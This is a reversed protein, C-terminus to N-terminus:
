VQPSPDAAAQAHDLLGPRPARCPAAGGVTSRSRTALPWWPVHGPADIPFAEITANAHKWARRYGSIIPERSVGETVWMDRSDSDQRRLGAM